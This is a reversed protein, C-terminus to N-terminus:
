QLKFSIPVTMNRRVNQRHLPCWAPIFKPASKVVRIAEVNLSYAGGKVVQVNSVSGDLEVTFGVVIQGQWNNQVADKPYKVNEAIWGAFNGQAFLPARVYHVCKFEDKGVVCGPSRPITPLVYKLFYRIHDDRDMVERLKAEKLIDLHAFKPTAVIYKHIFKKPGIEELMKLEQDYFHCFVGELVNATTKQLGARKIVDVAYRPAYKDAQVVGACRWNYTGKDGNRYLAAREKLHEPNEEEQIESLPIKAEEDLMQLYNEYSLSDARYASTQSFASGSLMCFCWLLVFSKKKLCSVVFVM